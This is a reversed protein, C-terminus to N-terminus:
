TRDGGVPSWLVLPSVETVLEDYYDILTAHPDPNGASFCVRLMSDDLAALRIRERVEDVGLSGCLVILIAELVVVRGALADRLDPIQALAALARKDGSLVLMSGTAAVAYIQAEGPDIEPIPTLKDLWLDDPEPLPSLSEARPLLGECTGEGLERRLRGRRLMHRLAPLRACQSMTLGLAGVADALLNAAGLKCFADTDILLRV